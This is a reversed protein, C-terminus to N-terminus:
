LMFFIGGGHIYFCLPLTEDTDPRIFNMDVSNGDPTSVITKREIILGANPVVSEDDAAEMMMKMGEAKMLEEPSNVVELAAERSDVDSFKSMTQDLGELLPVLRPDLRRDNKFRDTM